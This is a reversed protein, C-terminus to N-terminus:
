MNSVVVLYLPFIIFFYFSLQRKTGVPLLSCIKLGQPKEFNINTVKYNNYRLNCQNIGFVIIEHQILTVLTM